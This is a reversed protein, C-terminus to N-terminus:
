LSLLINLKELARKARNIADSVENLSCIVTKEIARGRVTCPTSLYYDAVKRYIWLHELEKAIQRGTEGKNKVKGYIKDHRFDPHEPRLHFLKSACILYVAYYCRSFITRIKADRYMSNSGGLEKALEEAFHLFEIPDFGKASRM